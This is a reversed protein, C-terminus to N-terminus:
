PACSCRTWCLAWAGSSSWRGWGRAAFGGALVIGASTIVGGTHTVARVIGEQTGHAGSETRARHVLFITYDIGLAVLFLFALLPVQSDLADQTFVLRSLWAGGG